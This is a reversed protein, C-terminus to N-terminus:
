TQCITYFGSIIVWDKKFMQSPIHSKRFSLFVWVIHFPSFSASLFHFLTSFPLGLGPHECYGKKAGKKMGKKM